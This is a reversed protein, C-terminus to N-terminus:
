TSSLKPKCAKRLFYLCGNGQITIRDLNLEYEKEGAFFLSVGPGSIKAM